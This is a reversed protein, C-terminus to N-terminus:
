RPFGAVPAAKGSGEVLKYAHDSEVPGFDEELGTPWRVKVSSISGGTALGFHLRSDPSSEYGGGSTRERSVTRIGQRITAVAGVADRNSRSGELSLTLYHGAKFENHFYAAPQNQSVLVLDLAGDNDLDGAALGRAVRPVPWCDGAHNSVDLLRGSASGLFLQSPMEYSFLPRFDNVHGNVIALDDRGDNNFDEAQIGFGLVSRTASALGISATRDTFQGGGLNRFFSTSEGYLNTVMLDRRGDGDLDGWAIGMGAQFGGESNAAVGREGAIEAFKMGGLNKFFFNASGDNAVFIDSKGDEDLDAVLVGLGRGNKDVIGSSASVDTFRGRDNRWLRDPVANLM